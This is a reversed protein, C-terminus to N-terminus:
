NIIRTKPVYAIESYKDNEIIERIGNVVCESPNDVINVHLDTQNNILTDLERIATSGGTLYIGTDIIDASLEPPTREM